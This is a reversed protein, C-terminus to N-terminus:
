KKIFEKKRTVGDVLIRNSSDLSSLGNVDFDNSLALYDRVYKLKNLNSTDKLDYLGLRGSVYELNSLVSSDLLKTFVINGVVYKPICIDEISTSEKDIIDGYYCLINPNKLDNYCSGVNDESIMFITALDKVPDRSQLLKDIDISNTRGLFSIKNKIEYLFILDDRTLDINDAIKKNIEYGKKVDFIIPKFEDGNPYENVKEEVKDLLENEINQNYLIGRIEIIRGSVDRICVRPITYDGNKDKLYYITLSGISLFENAEYPSTICWGTNKNNIDALMHKLDLLNYTKWIGDNYDVENKFSNAFVYAYLKAFNADEIYKNLTNDNLNVNDLYNLIYDYLYLIIEKKFEPFTSITFRTRRNFEEKRKDYGGLKTISKLTWYKLWMPYDEDNMLFNIWLNLSDKQDQIITKKKLDSYKSPIDDYKIVYRDYYRNNIYKILEKKDEKFAFSVKDIRDLYKRILEFKNDSLTGSKKVSDKSYLNRYVNLLFKEGSYNM